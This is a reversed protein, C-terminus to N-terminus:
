KMETKDYKDLITVEETLEEKDFMERVEPNAACIYVDCDISMKQKEFIITRVGQANISKLENM